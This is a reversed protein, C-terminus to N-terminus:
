KKWSAALVGPCATVARMMEPASGHLELEIEASSADDRLIRVGGIRGARKQIAECVGALRDRSDLAIILDHEKLSPAIRNELLYVFRLTALALVTATTGIALFVGGLSVAMAIAAVAWISAASTLGRVEGGTRLITGAGLFGIGTVIQAAIRAADSPAFARSVESFLTAGLAVLMHTRIGAPRGHLERELGVLGGLLVSIGLKALVSVFLRGDPTSLWDLM